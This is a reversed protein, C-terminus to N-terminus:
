FDKMIKKIVKNKINESENDENKKYDKNDEIVNEIIIKKNEKIMQNYARKKEQVNRM